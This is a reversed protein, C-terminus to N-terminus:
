EKENFRFNIKLTNHIVYAIWVLLIPVAITFMRLSASVLASGGLYIVAIFLLFRISFPFKRWNIFTPILSFLILTFIIGNIPFVLLSKPRQIAYSYPYHFILRGINYIINQTYKIPHSKINNIAIRKYVEDKEIGTYKNIEKFEEFHHAILVSDAGRINYNGFDIPNQVLEETWDGYEGEHPTSMWYLSDDGNGWYFLKDTLHYTYVLYPATTILAIIIIVLGKRYNQIKRNFIWLVVSGTLVVLLVNGFIMKTLVIYGFIFGSLIVYKTFIGPTDNKFVKIISFILITILLYTFTETHILPMNQYAIFYSAWAFSFTLAVSNSVIEKLAKFIFIISFYYLFANALTICILPLKLVLFPMLFIPYGPGNTLSINPAPTSYFGHLLNQAFKLYRHQDGYVGDTPSILVWIIFLVLFPFFLLYPNRFINKSKM